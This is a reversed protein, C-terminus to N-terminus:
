QMIHVSCTLLATATNSTQIKMFNFGLVSDCVATYDGITSPVEWDQIGSNASYTGMDKLRRFTGTETPSVLVYINATATVLGNAFTAIELAVRNCGAIPIASSASGDTVINAAYPKEGHMGRM